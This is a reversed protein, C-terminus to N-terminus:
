QAGDNVFVKWEMEKLIPFNGRLYYNESFSKQLIYSLKLKFGRNVALPGERRGATIVTSQRRKKPPCLNVNPPPM